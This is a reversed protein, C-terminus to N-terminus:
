SCISPAPLLVARSIQGRPLDSSQPLHARASPLASRRVRRVRRAPLRPLWSGPATPHPLSRPVPQRMALQPRIAKYGYLVDLRAPFKDSNIDYQRVIRM